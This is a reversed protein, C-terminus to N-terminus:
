NYTTPAIPPVFISYESIPIRDSNIEAWLLITYIGDGHQALLDAIDATVSFYDRDETWEDATIWPHTLKLKVKERSQDRANEWNRRAEESTKPAPVDPPIDYPNPCGKTERDITAADDVYAWGTEIPPRLGGIPLGNTYCYTRSLQGQTLPKLPPDYYIAITGTENSVHAGNKTRGSLTLTGSEITPKTDFEIYDGVFLQVLWITPPQYTLGIGVKRHHPDLINERHGLSNMFLEMAIDIQETPTQLEYQSLDDPCFDLAFVNEASYQEGDALTYRMYPKSGDTGWHGRTCNSLMDEAHFQAAPNTDLTVENLGVDSRAQNILSLTYNVLIAHESSTLAPPTPPASACAAAVCTTIAAAVAIWVFQSRHRLSSQSQHYSTPQSSPPRM